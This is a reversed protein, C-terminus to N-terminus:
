LVIQISDLNHRCNHRGLLNIQIRLYNQLRL